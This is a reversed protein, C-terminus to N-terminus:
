NYFFRNAITELYTETLEDHEISPSFSMMIRGNYIFMFPINSGELAHSFDASDDIYVTNGHEQGDRRKFDSALFLVRDNDMYDPIFRRLNALIYDMCSSCSLDSYKVVLFFKDSLHRKEIYEKFQPAEITNGDSLCSTYIHGAYDSQLIKYDYNDTSGIIIVDRLLVCCVILTAFAIALNMLIPYKTNM